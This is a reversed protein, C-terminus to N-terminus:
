LDKTEWSFTPIDRFQSLLQLYTNVAFQTRPHQLIGPTSHKEAEVELVTM